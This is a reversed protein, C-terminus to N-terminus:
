INLWEQKEATKLIKIEVFLPVLLLQFIKYIIRKNFKKLKLLQKFAM